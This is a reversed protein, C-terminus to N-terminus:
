LRFRLTLPGCADTLMIRTKEGEINPDIGSFKKM